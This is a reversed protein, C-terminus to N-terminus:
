SWCRRWTKMTRGIATTSLRSRGMSSSQPSTPAVMVRDRREIGRRQGPQLLEAMDLHDEQEVADVRGGHVGAGAPGPAIGIQGSTPMKAWRALSRGLRSPSHVHSSTSTRAGGELHAAEVGDVARRHEVDLGVHGLEGGPLATRWGAQDWSSM